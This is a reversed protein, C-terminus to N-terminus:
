PFCLVAAAGRLRHLVGPTHGCAQADREVQDVILGLELGGHNVIKDGLVAAAARGIGAQGAVAVDAEAPQQAMGLCQFGAVQGGPVISAHLLGVTLQRSRM